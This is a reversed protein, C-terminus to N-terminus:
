LMMPTAIDSYDKKKEYTDLVFITSKSNVIKRSGMHEYFHNKKELYHTHKLHKSAQIKIYGDFDTWSPLIYVVMVDVKLDSAADLESLIKDSTRGMVSIIFPPNVVWHKPEASKDCAGVKEETDGINLKELGINDVPDAYLTQDFFSGLSGFVEDTDRFLSCFKGGLSSLGSNLPSAFGEYRVGYNEALHKFQAQPLAWQQGKNILTSYRLFMLTLPKKEYTQLLEYKQKSVPIPIRVNPANKVKINVIWGQRNNNKDVFPRTNNQLVVPHELRLSNKVTSLIQNILRPIKKDNLESVLKRNVPDKANTIRYVTGSEMALTLVWRELCNLYEYRKYKNNTKYLRELTATIGYQILEKEISM